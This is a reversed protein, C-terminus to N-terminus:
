ATGHFSFASFAGMSGARKGKYISGVAEAADEIIAINHRKGIELLADM